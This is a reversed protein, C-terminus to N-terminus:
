HEITGVGVLDIFGVDSMNVSSEDFPNQNDDSGQFFFYITLM